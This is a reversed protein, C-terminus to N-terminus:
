TRFINFNLHAYGSIILFVSARLKAIFGGQKERNEEAKGGTTDKIVM